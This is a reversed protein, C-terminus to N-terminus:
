RVMDIGLLQGGFIFTIFANCLVLVVFSATDDRVYVEAYSFFFVARRAPTPRCCIIKSERERGNM